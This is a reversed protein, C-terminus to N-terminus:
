FAFLRAESGYAPQQSVTDPTYLTGTNTATGTGVGDGHILLNEDSGSYATIWVEPDSASPAGGDAPTSDAAHVPAHMNGHDIVSSAHAKAIANAIAGALPSQGLAGPAASSVILPTVSLPKINPVARMDAAQATDIALPSANQMLAHLATTLDA